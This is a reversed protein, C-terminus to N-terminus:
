PAEIMGGGVGGEPPPPGGVPGEQGSLLHGSTMAAFVAARRV